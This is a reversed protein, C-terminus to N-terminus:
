RPSLNAPGSGQTGPRPEGKRLLKEIEEDGVGYHKRNDLVPTLVYLYIRWHPSCHQRSACRSRSIPVTVGRHFASMLLWNVHRLWM